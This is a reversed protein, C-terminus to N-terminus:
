PKLLWPHKLAQSPTMRKAPDWELCKKIFDICLTDAQGKLAIYMSKSGPLGRVRGRASRGPLLTVHGSSSTSFQCYKPLGTSTFFHKYRKSQDLVQKPPMNCLEIICAMQDNEDDGPFLPYGTLLEAIICGLSWMDIPM